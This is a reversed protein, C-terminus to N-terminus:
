RTHFGHYGSVCPIQNSDKAAAFKVLSRDDGTRQQHGVKGCFLENAVVTLCNADAHGGHAPLYGRCDSQYDKCEDQHRLVQLGTQGVTELTNKSAAMVFAGMDPKMM